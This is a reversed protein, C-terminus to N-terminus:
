WVIGKNRKTANCELYLWRGWLLHKWSRYNMNGWLLLVTDITGITTHESYTDSRFNLYM